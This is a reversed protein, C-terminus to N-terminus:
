FTAACGDDRTTTCALETGSTSVGSGASSTTVATVFLADTGDLWARGKITFTHEGRRLEASPLTGKLHDM